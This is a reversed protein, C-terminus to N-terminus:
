QDNRDWRDGRVTMFTHVSVPLHVSGIRYSKDLTTTWSGISPLSLRSPCATSGIRGSFPALLLQDFPGSRPVQLSVWGLFPLNWSPVSHPSALVCGHSGLRPHERSSEQSFARPCLVICEDEGYGLVSHTCTLSM